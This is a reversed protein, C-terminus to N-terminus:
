SVNSTSKNAFTSKWSRCRAAATTRWLQCGARNFFCEEFSELCVCLAACGVRSQHSCNFQRRPAVDPPLQGVVQRRRKWHTQLRELGVVKLIPDIKNRSTCKLDMLRSNRSQSSAHATRPSRRLRPTPSRLATPSRSLACVRATVCSRICQTTACRFVIHSSCYVTALQSLSPIIIPRGECRSAVESTWTRPTSWARLWTLSRLTQSRLFIETLM